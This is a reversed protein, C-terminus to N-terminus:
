HWKGVIAKKYGNNKLMKPLTKQEPSIVMAADGKLIKVNKRFAHEGTLLSYRSPTCTASSSHADTFRIGKAALADVNPTNVQTAGYSSLDGWGLDDVYFIVINPKTQNNTINSNEQKLDTSCSSLLSISTALNILLIFKNSKKVNPM